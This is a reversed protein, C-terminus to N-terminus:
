KKVMKKTESFSNGLQLQYFYLGNKLNSTEFNISYEGADQVENILSTILRGSTDYINLTVSCRKEVKYSIETSNEFPNPKNQKLNSLEPTLAEVETRIGEIVMDDIYWGSSISYHDSYFYFGIQVSEDAYNNIPLYPYSWIGGGTNLFYGNDIDEWNENGVIKIQVKGYDGSSFSYWHRFRLVPNATVSPVNFEPSILRTSVNTVYNNSLITGACNEGAYASGPGSTPTGIEWTGRESYWDGIGGEWGEPNNFEIAGTKLEINDIYWGTSNSYHDAYFYLSIQVSQGSYASLDFLPHTWRSGGTNTYSPSINSWEETGAVKIQVIGYDGSSFSYWHWFRLHPNETTIPVTFVPSILRSSVNTTHNGSLITAACKEGIYASGPGSTPTGIQWTGRDCAWDGIGSEWEELINFKVSGSIVKVDDIYWGVSNSYHDSKFLFAIQISEGAYSSLDISPYTWRSGGTNNYTTSVNIWDTTGDIKIQVKGYDGNSFSYWHWFRLRPNESAAPVVLSTHRILRSSVNTTYNGALITAACKTPSHAENPGSTPEGVEWTGASAHWDITWDDEFDDHFITNVQAHLICFFHTFLILIFLKKIQQTKPQTTQHKM